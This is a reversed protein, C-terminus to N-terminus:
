APPRRCASRIGEALVTIGLLVAIVPDVVTGCATVVPAAGAHYAQQIFWGGLAAGVILGLM